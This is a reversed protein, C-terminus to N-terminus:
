WRRWRRSSGRPTTSLAAPLLRNKVGSHPDAKRWACSASVFCFPFYFEGDAGAGIVPLAKRLELCRDDSYKQGVARDACDM